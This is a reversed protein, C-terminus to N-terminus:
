YSLSLNGSNPIVQINITIIGASSGSRPTINFEAINSNFTWGFLTSTVSGHASHTNFISGSWRMLYTMDIAQLPTTTTDDTIASIKVMINEPSSNTVTLMLISTTVPGASYAKTFSYQSM